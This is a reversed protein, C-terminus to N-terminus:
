AVLDGLELEAVGAVRVPEIEAGRGPGRVRAAVPRVLGPLGSAVRLTAQPERVGQVVVVLGDPCRHGGAGDGFFLGGYDDLAHVRQRDLVAAVGLGVQDPARGLMVRDGQAPERVPDELHDGGLDGLGVLELGQLAM